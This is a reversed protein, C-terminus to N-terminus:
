STSSEYMFHLYYNNHVNKTVDFADNRIEHNKLKFKKNILFCFQKKFM